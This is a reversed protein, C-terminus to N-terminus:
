GPHRSPVVLLVCDCSVNEDRVSTVMGAISAGGEKRM